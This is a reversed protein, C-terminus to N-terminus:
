EKRGPVVRVVKRSMFLYEQNGDQDVKGPIRYVATVVEKFRITDGNNLHYINWNETITSDEFGVEVVEIEKGQQDKVKM